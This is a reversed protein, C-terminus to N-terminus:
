CCSVLFLLPLCLPLLLLLVLGCIERGGEMKCESEGKREGERERVVGGEKGRKCESEGTRGGERKGDRERGGGREVGGGGGGGTGM